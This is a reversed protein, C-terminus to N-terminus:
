LIKDIGDTSVRNSVYSVDVHSVFVRLDVGEDALGVRQRDRETTAALDVDFRHAFAFAWATAAKQSLVENRALMRDVYQSAILQVSLVDGLILGVGQV